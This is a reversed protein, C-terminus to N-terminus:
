RCGQVVDALDANGIGNQALRSLQRRLFDLRHALM